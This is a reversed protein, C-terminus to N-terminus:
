SPRILKKLGVFRETLGEWVLESVTEISLLETGAVCKVRLFHEPRETMMYDYENYLREQVLIHDTYEDDHQHEEKRRALLTNAVVPPVDLFISINEPPM